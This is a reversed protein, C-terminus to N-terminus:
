CRPRFPARPRVSERRPGATVVWPRDICGILGSLAHEIHFYFDVTLRDRHRTRVASRRYMNSSHAFYCGNAVLYDLDASVATSVAGFGARVVTSREDIVEMDHAVVSHDPHARLFDVQQQLKGPLMCDDADLHAVFEGSASNHVSMMNPTVGLRTAHGIVRVLGPYRSAFEAIIQMTGDGSRDDGILVEFPFDTQQAVVSDLCERIYREHNYSVICVSVLPNAADAPHRSDSRRAPVMRGSDGSVNSRARRFEM